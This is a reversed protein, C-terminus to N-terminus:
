KVSGELVFQVMPDVQHLRMQGDAEVVQWFQGPKWGLKKTDLEKDPVIYGPGLDWNYDVHLM